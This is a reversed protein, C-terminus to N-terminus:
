LNVVRGGSCAVGAWGGGCPDSGERWSPLRVAGNTFSHKFYLLLDADTSSSNSPAATGSSACMGILLVFLSGIVGASM